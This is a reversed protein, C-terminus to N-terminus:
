LKTCLETIRVIVEVAKEMSYVPIYEYKSHFNHGGNFINPTPMGMFSLRAGDTGGRIPTILPKVGVDLMAQKAIDVIYHVPEIKERMNYYQDKLELNVTMGSKKSFECVGDVIMDKRREFGDSDFDRILLEVETTEVDGKIGYVHFFGEYGSTNEPLEKKPLVNLFDNAVSISNIMKNKAYGPHVNKGKFTIKAYAANFNEFELSGIEGGDVTYAFKAGFKKLDFHEAGEGIKEDPTFCVCINGHKVEPHQVLYEMAALIEAIGAKDDAGLLTKGDTTIITQGTYDALEPFDEPSLVINEEQSLVINNGAYHETVRAKVNKGSMEPATDMHAIFGIAPVEREVNSPLFGMVYGYEDVEVKTMGIGKMEGCLMLAFEMQGLTSPSMQTHPDSQTHCTVYRLFREVVATM